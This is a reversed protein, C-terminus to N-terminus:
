NKMTAHLADTSQRISYVVFALSVVVAITGVPEGVAAWEGPSLKKLGHYEARPIGSAHRCCPYLRRPSFLCASTKRRRVTEFPPLGRM